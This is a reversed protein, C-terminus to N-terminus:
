GPQFHQLLHHIKLPFIGNEILLATIADVTIAEIEGEIINVDDILQKIEKASLDDNLMEPSVDNLSCGIFKWTTM